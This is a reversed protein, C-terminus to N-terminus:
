EGGILELSWSILERLMLPSRNWGGEDNDYGDM